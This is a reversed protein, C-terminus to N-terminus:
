QAVSSVHSSTEGAHRVSAMAPMDLPHWPAVSFDQVKDSLAHSDVLLPRLRKMAAMAAARSARKKSSGFGTGMEDNGVLVSSRFGGSAETVTYHPLPFNYVCCLTYLKAEPKDEMDTFWSLREDCPDLDRTLALFENFSADCVRARVSLKKMGIRPSERFEERIRAITLETFYSLACRGPHKMAEMRVMELFFERSAIADIAAYQIQSRSLLKAAWNGCQIWKSKKLQVNLLNGIAKMGLQQPSQVVHAALHGLDYFGRSLIGRHQRVLLLDDWVAVGVKLINKDFMLRQLSDPIYDLHEMQILLCGSSAAIQLLSIASEPTWEADFGVYKCEPVQGDENKADSNNYVNEQIWADVVRGDRACIVKMLPGVDPPFQVMETDIRNRIKAWPVLPPSRSRAHKSASTIPSKTGIITATTAATRRSKARFNFSAIVTCSPAASMKYRAALKSM